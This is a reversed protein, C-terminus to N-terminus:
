RASAVRSAQANAEVNALAQQTLADCDADKAGGMDILPLLAAPPALVGLAVSAGVRAAVPGGAAHIQPSKFSGDIHIPGRLAVLSPHKSQAKLTLDYSEKAFDISGEGDIKEVATDIVFSRATIRGNEAALDAVVCRLPSSRDGGMILPIARALDLNTLVIALESMNGGTSTLAVDGDSSALMAAVSNGTAAFRARGDVKGASGNPPKLKPVIDKLELNRVTVDGSTKIMDGRADM